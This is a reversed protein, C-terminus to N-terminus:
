SIAGVCRPCLEPHEASEGVHKDHTWCRACKPEGSAKVEIQAGKFETGEYGNGGGNIVIVKSVIFLEQLNENKIEEFAAAGQADLYLLLEADLPKGVVKDARALELAKNVDTRLALLKDWKSEQGAAYDYAPNFEPMANYLVSEPDADKGHIMAAWIEESTFALIPAILRVMGDLILYIASQASRRSLSDTGDCYLRDKIIDLYINSMEVACFNHVGHYITHYEYRDYSARVRETLRNFRIVAWKDLELMEGFPVANDPDFGDLNGLIFRATNRIKLYIDSLQKLIDKSIRVDTRYDSSAVWLRLIDAGYDKIVEDPAVANGLSKHMVKGEGDVTWGHTIIQKYPAEGKAAISTLMSSQFWGRYQDGGELYVDAPSRLGPFEDLVAAHTSGSDFWGDLTDTEKTFHTGGCHPCKYGKPLIDAADAEFWVNSGKEAFLNAVADISEPTCVPKQCEECYFVPIPLGWHRQRSICWDSRERIMAIMREKGWEPNWRIDDCAAVALEKIADVSAFWQETARFIIPNKCRWCHPYSHVIKEEAFLAGSKRLDELIVENAKSYHLGNYQLAEETMVGRGNVPAIFPIQPYNRCVNFDDVGFGPATHVCGTGTDITVHGGVIVLSERDYFPHQAVALELSKGPLTKVVSYEAVRGKKMVEEVLEAALIYYEGGAGVVAYEFDPGLSIALNGPLTWTTTTWILFYTKDVPCVGKLVGKDDKVRFKVYISTCPDDAYEIEAEALATEDTPCWYVPKLGKYIYGAEYMKGFVRLEAAEFKPDMTLYPKEWDGVVGLRKFQERQRNVFDEAFAHCADRFQTISMNKRDLKNKKIIASEIPMGHNDWGPVYPSKFGTMNKYKVIFDKLIKNMATGIHIDGNSFPPGDHLIFLPKGENREMLKGYIDKRYFEALMEPERKPLGARMPFDTKPLNITANYDVPM